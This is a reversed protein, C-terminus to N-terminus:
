KRAARYAALARERAWAHDVIPQPYERGIHCGSEKQVDEPMKWPEHVFRDPVNELVPLWKRVYEGHPDFKKGQAVPNFVRFYPAADTGTGATWQWGGNNAAPDGDLLHQMFWCEGWRWDILLDKTLFSAVIMRARNHMWGTQELQIMAADVIPYGTRGRCWAEFEGDDNSWAIAALNDRFSKRRVRPFHALIDIYFERWILQRLWAAASARQGEDHFSSRAGIALSAAFRPSLVGFRLYPSLMSTGSLDPRDRNAAYRAIGERVFAELRKRAAAEGVPFITEHHYAPTDPIPLSELDSPTDIKKPAAIRAYAEVPALASWARSYPTFVVYPQGDKKRISQLPHITLGETLSLPLTERIAEDRQCAYPSVDAQAFIARADIEAVLRTLVELPEGARFILRSGIRRLSHELSRLSALLFAKRAAGSYQSDWLGPDRIFLPVVEEAADLAAQLAPNDDLRLDRRLWWIATMKM